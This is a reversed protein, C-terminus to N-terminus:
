HCLTAYLAEYGMAAAEWTFQRGRVAAAAALQRRLRDDGLVRALADALAGPDNPSVLLAEEGNSVAEPIGGVSTAVVALGVQMAELVALPFNESRSPLVLVKAGALCAGLEERDLQGRFTVTKALGLEETLVRLKSEDRGVGVFDLRPRPEELQSLARLLVDLGKHHDLRAVCVLEAGAEPELPRPLPPAGNHVVGMPNGAGLYGRERLAARSFDSTCIVLDAARLARRELLAIIRERIWRVRRFSGWRGARASV